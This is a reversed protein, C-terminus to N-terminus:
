LHATSLSKLSYSANTGFHDALCGSITFISYKGSPLYRSSYPSAPHQPVSPAEYSPTPVCEPASCSSTHHRESSAPSESYGDVLLTDYGHPGLPDEWISGGSYCCDELPVAPLARHTPWAESPHM